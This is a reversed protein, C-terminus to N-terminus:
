LLNEEESTVVAAHKVIAGVGKIRLERYRVQITGTLDCFHPDKKDM